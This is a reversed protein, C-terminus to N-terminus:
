QFGAYFEESHATPSFIARPIQRGITRAAWRVRALAGPFFHGLHQVESDKGPTIILGQLVM